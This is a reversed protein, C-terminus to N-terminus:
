TAFSKVHILSENHQVDIIFDVDVIDIDSDSSLGHISRKQVLVKILPLMGKSLM